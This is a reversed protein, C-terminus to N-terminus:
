KLADVGAQAVQADQQSTAGAVGVAGIMKGDAVIPVGGELVGADGSINLLRLHVGGQAILEQFAKTPRRFAVAGQAKEQAIRPTSYATNELRQLLVLHGGSDVIAITVNWNNKLAEAEAAAMAKRAQELSIPAGYPTPTQAHAQAVGLLLASGLLVTRIRTGNM